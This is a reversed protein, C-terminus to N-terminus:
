REEKLRPIPGPHQSIGESTNEVVMLAFAILTAVKRFRDVPVKIAEVKREIAFAIVHPPKKMNNDNTEREIKTRTQYKKGSVFPVASSSM